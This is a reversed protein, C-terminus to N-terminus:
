AAPRNTTAPMASSTMQSVPGLLGNFAMKAVSVGVGVRVAVAVLVGGGVSVGLMVGVDGAVAVAVGEPGKRYVMWCPSESCAMESLYLRPSSPMGSIRISFGNSAADPLPMSAVLGMMKGPWCIQSGFGSRFSGVAVGM